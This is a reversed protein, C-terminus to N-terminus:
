NLVEVADGLVVAGSTMAVAYVGFDRHGWGDELAGLTDADRQGTEPNATTAMCRKIRSVVEFETEGIRIKRGILEFEEWPELDEVWFNGRWRLPSLEQGLKQEVMRHSAASNLSITPEPTDTMGRKAARVIRVPRARDQPVLPLVWDLFEASDTDPNFTLPACDPHTLTVQTGDDSLDLRIAALSPAKAGRSFNSCHAWEGDAIKAAEHAVAWVRDWPLTTGATVQVAELSQSGHSKVPYRRIAEVRGTM